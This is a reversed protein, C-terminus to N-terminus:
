WSMDVKAGDGWVWKKEIRDKMDIWYKTYGVMVKKFKNLVAETKIVALHASVERCSSWAENYTMKKEIAFYTKATSLCHACM